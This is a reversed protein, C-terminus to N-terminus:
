RTSRFYNRWSGPAYEYVGSDVVLRRGGVTLEYSLLDAHAHAPLYPPCPEGADFFLFDGRRDDRLVHHGTDPFALSERAPSEPWSQYVEWGAAGFLLAPYLSY